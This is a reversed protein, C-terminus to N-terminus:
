RSVLDPSSGGVAAPNSSQHLISAQSALDPTSSSFTTIPPALYPPPAPSSYITLPAASRNLLDRQVNNGATNLEPTSYTHSTTLPYGAAPAPHSTLYLPHTMDLQGGAPPGVDFQGGSTMNVPHLSPQSSYLQSMASVSGGGYKSMVATEYDPAPRYIPVMTNHGSPSMVVSNHGSALQDLDNTSRAGSLRSALHDSLNGSSTNHSITHHGAHLSHHQLYQNTNVNSLKLGPGSMLRSNISQKGGRAGKRDPFYKM